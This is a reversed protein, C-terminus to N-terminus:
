SESLPLPISRHWQQNARGRSSPNPHCQQTSGSSSGEPLSTDSERSFHSRCIPFHLFGKQLLWWERRRPPIIHLNQLGEGGVRDSKRTMFHCFLARSSGGHRGRYQPLSSGPVWATKHGWLPQTLPARKQEHAARVLQLKPIQVVSRLLTRM